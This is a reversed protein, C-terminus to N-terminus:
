SNLLVAKVTTDSTNNNSAKSVAELADTKTEFEVVISSAHSSVNGAYTSKISTTILVKYM